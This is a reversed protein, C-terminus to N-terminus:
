KYALLIVELETEMSQLRDLQQDDLDAWRCGSSLAIINVGLDNELGHVKEVQEEDISAPALCIAAM